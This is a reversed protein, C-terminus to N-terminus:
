RRKYKCLNSYIAKKLQKFEMTLENFYDRYKEHEKARPLDYERKGYEYEKKLDQEYKCLLGMVLTNKRRFGLIGSAISSNQVLQHEIIKFQALDENIDEVAEMWQNLEILDKKIALRRYRETDYARATNM